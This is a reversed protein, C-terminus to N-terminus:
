VHFHTRRCHTKVEISLNVFECQSDCVCVYGCLPLSYFIRVAFLSDSLRLQTCIQWIFSYVIGSRFEVSISRVLCFCCLLFFCWRSFFLNDIMDLRKPIISSVVTKVDFNQVCMSNVYRHSGNVKGNARLSFTVGNYDVSDINIFICLNGFQM